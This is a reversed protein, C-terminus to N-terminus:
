MALYFQNTKEQAHLNNNGQNIRKATGKKTKDKIM